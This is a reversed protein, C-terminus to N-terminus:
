SQYSSNGAFYAPDLKKMTEPIPGELDNDVVNFMQIRDPFEPIRGQFGNGQFNLERLRPLETLSSPISGTFKNGAMFLRRLSRMGAFADDPIDGSFSNNSLYVTRLGTLIKLDPMPGSFRNHMFSMSRLSPISGLASVDLKEGHLNMNELQLGWVIGKVCIVGVWKRREGDGCPPTEPDWNRLAEPNQLSSKFKILADAETLASSLTPWSFIFFVIFFLSPFSSVPMRLTHAAM